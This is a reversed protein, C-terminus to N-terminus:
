TKLIAPEAFQGIQEAGSIQDHEVISANKRGPKVPAAAPRPRLRETRAIRRRLIEELALDFDQQCHLDRLLRVLPLAQDTRPPLYPHPLPDIKARRVRPLRGSQSGFDHAAPGETLTPYPKLRHGIEEGDYLLETVDGQRGVDCPRVTGRVPFSVLRYISTLPSRHRRRGRAQVESGL